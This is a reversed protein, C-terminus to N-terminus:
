YGSWDGTVEPHRIQVTYLRTGENKSWWEFFLVDRLSRESRSSEMLVQIIVPNNTFTISTYDWSWGSSYVSSTTQPFLLVGTPIFAFITVNKISFTINLFLLHICRPYNKWHRIYQLCLLVASLFALHAPCIDLSIQSFSVFLAWITIFCINELLCQLLGISPMSNGVFLAGTFLSISLFALAAKLQLIWYSKPCHFM